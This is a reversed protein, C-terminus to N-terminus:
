RGNKSRKDIKMTNTNYMTAHPEVYHTFFKKNKKQQEKNGEIIFIFLLLFAIRIFFGVLIAGMINYIRM